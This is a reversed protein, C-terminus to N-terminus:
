VIVTEARSGRRPRRRRHLHDQAVRAAFDVDVTATPHVSQQGFEIKRSLTVQHNSVSHQHGAIRFEITIVHHFNSRNDGTTGSIFHRVQRSGIEAGFVEQLQATSLDDLGNMIM